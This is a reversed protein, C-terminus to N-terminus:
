EELAGSRRLTNGLAIRAGASRSRLGVATQLYRLAEHPQPPRSYALGYGLWYNLWFDDPHRAQGEKLVRVAAAWARVRLLSKGLRLLAPPPLAAAEPGAAMAELAKRDRRELATVLRVRWPDAGAVSARLIEALRQQHEGPSTWLFWDELADLLPKHLRHERLQASVANPDAGLLDLGHGRLMGAIRAAAAATAF